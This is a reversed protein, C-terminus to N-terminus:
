WSKKISYSSKLNIRFFSIISVATDNVWTEGKRKRWEERENVVVTMILIVRGDYKSEFSTVNRKKEKANL